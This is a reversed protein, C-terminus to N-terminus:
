GKEAACLSLSCELLVGHNVGCVKAVATGPSATDTLNGALCGARTSDGNLIDFVQPM